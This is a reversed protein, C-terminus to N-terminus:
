PPERQEPMTSNASWRARSARARRARGRARVRRRRRRPRAARRRGATRTRTRRRARPRAAARQRQRRARRQGRHARRAPGGHDRGGCLAGPGRARPRAHSRARRASAARVREAGARLPGRCARPAALSPTAGRGRRAAHRLQRRAAGGGAVPRESALVFCLVGMLDRPAELYFLCASHFFTSIKGKFRPAKQHRHYGRRRLSPTPRRGILGFLSSRQGEEGEEGARGRRCRLDGHVARRTVGSRM